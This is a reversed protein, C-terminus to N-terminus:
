IGCSRSSMIGTMPQAKTMVTISRSRSSMDIAMPPTMMM